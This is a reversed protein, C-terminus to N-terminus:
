FKLGIELSAFFANDANPNFAKGPSFFGLIGEIYVDKIKKNGYIMDIEYGLEKNEGQPDRDIKTGTLRDVVEVQDYRHFVFDISTKKAPRFGYGLTVISVNSLEPDFIEGLYQFDTVGNFSFDNDQLDTQRFNTDKGQNRHEDGSGYAYGLTFSSEGPTEFKFTGGIDIGYAEIDRTDNSREREGTVYAANVWHKFSANKKGISQLGLFLLDELRSGDFSREDLKILYASLKAKKGPKFSAIATLYRIDEDQDQPNNLFENIASHERMTAVEWNVSEQKYFLRIGDLDADYLWEMEDKFEQRGIRWSLKSAADGIDIYTEEVVSDWDEEEKDTENHLFDLRVFKAKFFLNFDSASELLLSLGVEPENTVIDNEKDANLDFDKEVELTSEIYGAFELSTVTKTDAAPESEATSAAALAQGTVLGNSLLAILLFGHSSLRSVLASIGRHRFGPSRAPKAAPTNISKVPNMLM